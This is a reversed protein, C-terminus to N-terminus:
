NMDLEYLKKISKCSWHSFSVDLFPSATGCYGEVPVQYLARTIFTAM